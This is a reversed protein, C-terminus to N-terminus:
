ATYAHRGLLLQADGVPRVRHALAPGGDRHAPGVERSPHHRDADRGPTTGGLDNGLAAFTPCSSSSQGEAGCGILPEPRAHPSWDPNTPSCSSSRATAPESSPCRGASTPS